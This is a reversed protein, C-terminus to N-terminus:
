FRPKPNGGDAGHAQAVDLYEFRDASGSGQGFGGGRQV